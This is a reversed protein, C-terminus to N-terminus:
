KKGAEQLKAALLNGLTGLPPAPAQKKTQKYSEYEKREIEEESEVRPGSAVKQEVGNLVLTIRKEDLKLKEVRVEIEQGVEVVERPHSIRRGGGLASIHLLGDVGEELTAFAGFHTLRVIKAMHVSGEPYKEAAALWPDAQIHKLSFSFREKEWDLKLVAVEVTQGVRLKENIDEVHGWCIESVPLLGQIGGIDIFAGFDRISAVTGTVVMGEELSGKLEEVQKLREKEAVKRHSVIVNKGSEGYEIIQFDLQRGSLDEGEARFLGLQSFPCFARVSGAIKVSFGGKIEKDITGEIPIEARFAEELHANAEAGKGLRTTFKMGGKGASLFYAEITDGDKLTVNGEQDCIEAISFYGESKGGLDIFVWEKTIRVITAEVKEGTALVVPAEYSEELLDAFSREETM